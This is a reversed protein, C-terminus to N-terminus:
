LLITYRVRRLLSLVELGIHKIQCFTPEPKGKTLYYSGDSRKNERDGKCIENWLCDVSSITIAVERAAVREAKEERFLYRPHGLRNARPKQFHEAILM